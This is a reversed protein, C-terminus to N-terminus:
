VKVWFAIDERYDTALDETKMIVWEEAEPVPPPVNINGFEILLAASLHFADPVTLCMSDRCALLNQHTEFHFIFGSNMSDTGRNALIHAVMNGQVILNGPVLLWDTNYQLV